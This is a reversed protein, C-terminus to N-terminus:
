NEYHIFTVKLGDLVVEDKKTQINIQLKCNNPGAIPNFEFNYVGESYANLKGDPFHILPVEHYYAENGSITDRISVVIKSQGHPQFQNKLKVQIINAIGFSNIEGTNQQLLSTWTNPKITVNGLLVSDLCLTSPKSFDYKKKWLIGRYTKDLKLFVKWYSMKDMEGWHLIFHRYQKTQVMNLPVTLVCLFIFVAKWKSHLQHILLALPILFIIYFDVFARHGFSAGFGWVWWSSIIYTFLIFFGLWSAVLFYHKKLIAPILWLLSLLLLPAYVFFGKRYSFLVKFFAPHAFNFGEGQYSYIFFSGTEIYWLVLQIFLIGSFLLISLFLPKPKKLTDTIALRLAPFSGSIFPVFLLVIGNLQRIIVVLALFVAALLFDKNKKHIFYAKTFFLFANIAFFSYVHSFSPDYYTYNTLSTGFAALLQVFFITSTPIQYLELIRRLFYLGALLYFLASFLIALHYGQSYGSPDANVLLTTIHATFFFPAMLFATGCPYKNIKTDGYDIYMGLGKIRDSIQFSPDIGKQPFDHYIFIAPLYDYYGQGDAKITEKPPVLFAAIAVVMALGVLLEPLLRIDKGKLKVIM